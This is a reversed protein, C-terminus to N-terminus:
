LLGLLETLSDVVVVATREGELMERSHYGTTVGISNVGAEYGSRLGYITDEVFFSERPLVEFKDCVMKLREAKPMPDGSVEDFLDLVGYETLERVLNSKPHNSVIALKIGRDNRLRWLVDPVDSYMEPRIPNDKRSVIDTYVAAYEEDIDKEPIDIGFSQVLEGASAKTAALWAGMSIRSVGYKELLFMNAEYVPRRDDSLVGSHDFIGLKVNELSMIFVM